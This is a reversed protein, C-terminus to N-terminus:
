SGGERTGAGSGFIDPRIGLKELKAVLKLRCQRYWDGIMKNTVGHRPELDALERNSLGWLLRGSLIRRCRHEMAMIVSRVKEVIMRDLVDVGAPAPRSADIVDTECSIPARDEQRWVEAAKNHAVMVLWGAFRRGRDRYQRLRKFDGEVLAYLAASALEPRRDDDFWRFSRPPSALLFRFGAEMFRGRAWEPDSDLRGMFDPWPKNLEDILAAVDHM